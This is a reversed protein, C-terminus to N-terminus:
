SAYPTAKPTSERDRIRNRDTQAIFDRMEAQYGRVKSRAQALGQADGAGEALAARRKWARIKREIGRQQQRQEYGMPNETNILDRTLGPIYAHLTHTCGPHFLGAAIADKLPPYLKLEDAM